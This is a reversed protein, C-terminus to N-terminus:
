SSLLREVKQVCSIQHSGQGCNRCDVPKGFDITTVPQVGKGPLAQQLDQQGGEDRKSQQRKASKLRRSFMLHQRSKNSGSCANESCRDQCKQMLRSKEWLKLACGTKKGM